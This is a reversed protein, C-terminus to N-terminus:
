AAVIAAPRRRGLYVGLGWLLGGFLVLLISNFLLAGLVDQRLQAGMGQLAQTLFPPLESQAFARQTLRQALAGGGVLLVMGVLGAAALPAGWWRLLQAWARAVVAAILGLTSLSLLWGWRALARVLRVGQKLQDVNEIGTQGGAESLPLVSPLPRVGNLLFRAGQEILWSRMPEPPHCMLEEPFEEEFDPQARLQAVQEPTCEPWSDVLLTVMEQAGGAALREKVPGIDLTLAPSPQDNDFWAYLDSLIRTVQEQPWGRPILIDLLQQRAEPDLRQFERFRQEGQAPNSPFMSQMAMERLIGSDILQEGILQSMRQPDFFIQAWNFALLSLPLTAILLLALAGGIIRSASRACGGSPKPPSPTSAAM